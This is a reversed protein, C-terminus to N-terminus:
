MKLYRIETDKIDRIDRQLLIGRIETSMNCEIFMKQQRIRLGYLIYIISLEGTM